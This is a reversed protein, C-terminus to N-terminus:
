SNFSRQHPYSKVSGGQPRLTLSSPPTQDATVGSCLSQHNLSLVLTLELVTVVMDRPACPITVDTKGRLSVQPLFNPSLGAPSGASTTPDSLPQCCKGSPSNAAMVMIAQSGLAPLDPLLPKLCPGDAEHHKHLVPGISKAATIDKKDYFTNLSMAPPDWSQGEEVLCGGPAPRPHSLKRQRWRSQHTPQPINPPPILSKGLQATGAAVLGARSHRSAALCTVQWGGKHSHM